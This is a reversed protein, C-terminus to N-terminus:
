RRFNSSIMQKHKALAFDGHDGGAFQELGKRAVLVRRGIRCTRIKNSAILGDLTRISISLSRAAERKSLLIPEGV